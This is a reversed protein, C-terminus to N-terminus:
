EDQEDEEMEGFYGEDEEKWYRQDEDEPKIQTEKATQDKSRTITLALQPTRATAPTVENSSGMLSDPSNLPSYKHPRRGAATSKQASSSANPNQDQEMAMKLWNPVLSFGVLADELDSGSHSYNFERSRRGDRAPSSSRSVPSFPISTTQPSSPASRSPIDFYGLARHPDYSTSRAMNTPKATVNPVQYPSKPSAFGPTLYRDQTNSM